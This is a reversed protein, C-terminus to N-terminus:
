AGKIQFFQTSKEVLVDEYVDPYKEKLKNRDVKSCSRTVNIASCEGFVGKRYGHMKNLIDVKLKGMRNKSEDNIIKQESYQSFLKGVDSDFEVVDDKVPYAVFADGRLDRADLDPTVRKLVHENWFRICNQNIMEIFEDDRPIDYHRFVNGGILVALYGHTAGTVSMYHQVQCMYADPIQNDWDDISYASSTKCELISPEGVVRRDINAILCNHKDHILIERCRRVKKGTKDSWWDAVADELRRGAEMAENDSDNTNEGIKDLYLQLPTKWKSLGLVAAVDSGGIGKRRAELWESRDM